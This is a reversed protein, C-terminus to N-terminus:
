DTLLAVFCLHIFYINYHFLLTTIKKNIMDKKKNIVKDTQREM